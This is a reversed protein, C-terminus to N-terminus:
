PLDLITFSRDISDTLITIYVTRTGVFEDTEHTVLFNKKKPSTSVKGCNPDNLFITYIHVPVSKTSVPYMYGKTYTRVTHEGQTTTICSTPINFAGMTFYTFM